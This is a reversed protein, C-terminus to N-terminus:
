INTGNKKIKTKEPKNEIERIAQLCQKMLHTHLYAEAEFERNRELLDPLYFQCIHLCEHALAYYDYDEFKFEDTWWIYFLTREGFDPHNVERKMALKQTKEMLDKDYEIGVSWGTSGYQKEVKHLREILKDYTYNYCFLVTGPFIGTDLFKLGANPKKEPTKKKTLKTKKIM